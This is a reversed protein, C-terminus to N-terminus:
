YPVLIRAEAAVPLTAIVGVGAGITKIADRRTLQDNEDAMM